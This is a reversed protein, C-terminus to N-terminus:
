NRESILSIHLNWVPFSIMNVTLILSIKTESELLYMAMGNDPPINDELLTRTLTGLLPQEEELVYLLEHVTQLMRVHNDVDVGAEGFINKTKQKWM